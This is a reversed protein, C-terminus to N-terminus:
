KWIKISKNSGAVIAVENDNFLFTTLCNIGSTVGNLTYCVSKTELNWIKISGDLSGSLLLVENNEKIMNVSNIAKEHDILTMMQAGNEANWLKVKNDTGGGIIVAKDKFITTTISITYTSTNISGILKNKLIDWIKISLDKSGSAIYIKKHLFFSTLCYVSGKHGIFTNTLEQTEPNWVKINKDAGGSVLYNDDGIKVFILCHVWDEHGMITCVLKREEPNWIKITRDDSGSAIFVQNKILFTIVCNVRHSHGQLSLMLEGNSFPNYVKLDREGSVIVPQGNLIFSSLSYVPDSKDISVYKKYYVPSLFKSKNGEDSAALKNGQRFANSNIKVHKNVEFPNNIYNPNMPNNASNPHSSSDSQLPNLGQSNNACNNQYSDKMTDGRSESTRPNEAGYRDNPKSFSGFSTNTFKENENQLTQIEINKNLLDSYLDKNEKELKGVSKDSILLHQENQNLKNNLDKYNNQLRLIENELIAISEQSKNYKEKLILVEEHHKVENGGEGDKSEKSQRKFLNEDKSTANKPSIVSLESLHKKFIEVEKKLSSVNEELEKKKEILQDREEELNKIKEENESSKADHNKEKELLKKMYFIEEEKKSLERDQNQLGTIQNNLEKDKANILSDKENIVHDKENIDSIYQIIENDKYSVEEELDKIAKLYKAIESKYQNLKDNLKNIIIDKEKELQNLDEEDKVKIYEEEAQFKPTDHTRSAKPSIEKRPSRNQGRHSLSQSEENLKGRVGHNQANLWENKAQQEKNLQKVELQLQHIESENRENKNNFEANLSVIEDVKEKIKAQIEEKLNKADIEMKKNQMQLNSVTRELSKIDEEKRQLDIKKLSLGHQVDKLEQESKSLNEKKHELEFKEQQIKDLLCDKNRIEDMKSNIQHNMKQVDKSLKANNSELQHKEEKLLDYTSKISSLEYALEKKEKLIVEIMNIQDNDSNVGTGEGKIAGSIEHKKLEQIKEDLMREIAKIRNQKANIVSAAEEIKVLLEDIKNNRNQLEKELNTIKGRTSKLESSNENLRSSLATKEKHHKELGLQHEKKLKPIPDLISHDNDVGGVDEKYNKNISLKPSPTMLNKDLSPSNKQKRLISKPDPADKDFDFSDSKTHKQLNIMSKSGTIMVKPTTNIRIINELQTKTPPNIEASFFSLFATCGNQCKSIINNITHKIDAQIDKLIHYFLFGHEIKRNFTAFAEKCKFCLTPDVFMKLNISLCLNENIKKFSIQEEILSVKTCKM